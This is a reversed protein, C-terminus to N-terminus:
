VPAEKVNPWGTAEDAEHIPDLLLLDEMDTFKELKPQEFAKNEPNFGDQLAANDTASEASEVVVLGEAQLRELFDVVAQEVAPDGAQYSQKIGEVITDKDAQREVANWIDVATNFLSYYDGKELDVIVVEGDITESVVNPSNVRYIEKM